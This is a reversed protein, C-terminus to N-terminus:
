FGSYLGLVLLLFHPMSSLLKCICAKLPIYIFHSSFITVYMMWLLVSIALDLESIM